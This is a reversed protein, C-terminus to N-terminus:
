CNKYMVLVWIMEAQGRWWHTGALPHNCVAASFTVGPRAFLLPLQQLIRTISIVLAVQLSDAQFWLRAVAWSDRSQRTVTSLYWCCFCEILCM